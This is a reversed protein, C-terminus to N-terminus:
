HIIEHLEDMLESATLTLGYRSREGALAHWLVALHAAELPGYGQALIGAVMGALVDGSGATSLNANGFPCCWTTKGDSVLTGAGKLVAVCQYQRALQLVSQWRNQQVQQVTQQLLAAAEKPHPTIVALQEPLRPSRALLHLGDADLVLPLGAQLAQKFLQKSWQSQGMGMGLLLVDAARGAQITEEDNVGAFGRVMLEPAHLPILDAHKQDTILTTLGAGSKLVARGALLVAGLMGAQGGATLVHGFSGKHANGPRGAPLQKLAQEEMLQATMNVEILAELPVGLSAFHVQGCCAPGDLTFLGTNRGLIAVTESARVACGMIQGTTGHLGSPIDIALVPLGCGNIQEIVAAYRGSVERILGTGFLGDVVVDFPEDPWSSVVTGQYVSAARAADGTLREPPQLALVRVQRGQKRALEAVVFGDGGNNGPGTIVLLRQQPLHNFVAEGALLMLAYSDVGLAEAALQDITKTKDNSYLPIMAKKSSPTYHGNM